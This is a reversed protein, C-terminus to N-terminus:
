RFLKRSYYAATYKGQEKNRCTCSRNATKVFLYQTCSVKSESFQFEGAAMSIVAILLTLFVMVRRYFVPEKKYNLNIHFNNQM